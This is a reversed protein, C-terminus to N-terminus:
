YIEYYDCYEEFTMPKALDSGADVKAWELYKEYQERASNLREMCEVEAQIELEEQFAMEIEKQSVTESRTRSM